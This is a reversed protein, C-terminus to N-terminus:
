GARTPPAARRRSQERDLTDSSSAGPVGRAAAPRPRRRASASGQRGGAAGQARLGQLLRVAPVLVGDPLDGALLQEAVQHLKAVALHGDLHVDRRDRALVLQCLAASARGNKMAGFGLLLLTIKRVNVEIRGSRLRLPAFRGVIVRIGLLLPSATRRNKVGTAGSVRANRASVLQGTETIRRSQTSRSLPTGLATVALPGDRPIMESKRRNWRIASRTWSSVSRSSRETRVLGAVDDHAAPGAAVTVAAAATSAALAPMSYRGLWSPWPKRSTRM